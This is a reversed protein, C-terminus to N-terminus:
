KTSAKVVRDYIGVPLMRNIFTLFRMTFPFRLDVRKQAIATLIMMSAKESSSVFSHKLKEGTAMKTKIFGPHIVTTYICSPLEQRLSEMLVSLASKSSFYASVESIGRGQGISSIAAIHGSGRKKFYDSFWSIMVLNANFNVNMVELNHSLNKMGLPYVGTIGANLIVIDISTSTTIEYLLEPIKEIHNLDFQYDSPLIDLTIVKKASKKLDTCLQLGLGSAGGTILINKGKFYFDINM